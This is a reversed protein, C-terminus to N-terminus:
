ADVMYDRLTRLGLCALQVHGHEPSLLAMKEFLGERCDQVTKIGIRLYIWTCKPYGHITLVDIDSWNTKKEWPLSDIFHNQCWEAADKNGSMVAYVYYKEANRIDTDVGNGNEYMDALPICAKKSGFSHAKSLAKFAYENCRIQIDAHDESRINGYYYCCGIVFLNDITIDSTISDAREAITIAQKWMDLARSIDEENPNTSSGEQLDWIMCTGLNIFSDIVGSEDDLDLRGGLYDNCFRELWLRGKARDKEVGLLYCLGIYSYNGRFGNEVAYELFKIPNDAVERSEETDSRKVVNTQHGRLNHNRREKYIAIDLEKHISYPVRLAKLQHSFAKLLDINAPGFANLYDQGPVNELDAIKEVNHQKFFWDAEAFQMGLEEIGVTNFYLVASNKESDTMLRYGCESIKAIIQEYSRRGINRLQSLDKETLLTLDGVTNIGSRLLVNIERVGMEMDVVNIDNEPKVFFQETRASARVHSGKVHSDTCQYKNLKPFEKANAYEYYKRLAYQTSLGFANDIQKLAMLAKYTDDDNKVIDKFQKNLFHESEVAWNLISDITNSSLGKLELHDRFSEKNM